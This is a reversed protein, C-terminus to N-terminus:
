RPRCFPSPMGLMRGETFRRQKEQPHNPLSLYRLRIKNSNSGAALALSRTGESRARVSPREAKDPARRLGSQCLNLLSVRPNLSTRHPQLRQDAPRLCRGLLRQWENVFPLGDDFPLRLVRAARRRRDVTSISSRPPPQPVLADFDRFPGRPISPRTRASSRQIGAATKCFWM